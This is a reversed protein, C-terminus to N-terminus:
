KGGRWTVPHNTELDFDPWNKAIWAAAEHLNHFQRVLPAPQAAAAPPPSANASRNNDPLKPNLFVPRGDHLVLEEFRQLMWDRSEAVCGPHSLLRALSRPHSMSLFAQRLASYDANGDLALYVDSTGRYDLLLTSATTSIRDRTTPELLPIITALLRSLSKKPFGSDISEVLREATRVRHEPSLRTALAALANGVGYRRIWDTSKELVPILADWGRTTQEPSLRFSLATLAKGVADLANAQTSKELVAILADWGRMTQESSLRPALVALATGAAGLANADTSKQLAAILADWGSMTQESSLRPALVALATGAQHHVYPNTSKELVAILADGGSATQESSLRFALAALADGAPYNAYANTSKNLAAILADWGRTAQESSLRPALAALANGAADLAYQDTSKELVVILVDWGRTTVIQDTRSVAFGIFESCESEYKSVFDALFHM